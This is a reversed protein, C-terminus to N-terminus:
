PVVVFTQDNYNGARLRSKAEFVTDGNVNETSDLYENLQSCQTAAAVRTQAIGKSAFPATNIPRGVAVISAEATLNGVAISPSAPRTMQYYVFSGWQNQNFWAPLNATFSAENCNSFNGNVASCTIVANSNSCSNTKTPFTTQNCGASRFRFKGNSVRYSGLIGTSSCGSATCSVGIAATGCSGIGTCTCRTPSNLNCLGSFAGSFTGGSTRDFRVTEAATTTTDFLTNTCALLTSTAAATYTYACSQHNAPLFGSLLSQECAFNNTTGLQSAFPYYGNTDQYTKLSHRVEEGVRKELAAMLEDITIYVLKDNFNYPQVFTPDSASVNQSDEGMVFDEAVVSYSQNSYIAAGIRFGDLFQTADAAGARSQGNLPDGPAIIVAAVRDSVLSGNRDLVQLWPYSQTGGQRMYPTIANPPNIMGPNVIPNESNVHDRVLNRSVAYWLRNGQADRFGQGLGPYTSLGTYVNLGTNPDLCPSTDPQSPLQGLLFSNQFLTTVCDSSGDYIGVDLHRDPWPMQGPSFRHSVSWAILAQKAENLTQMTRKDQELRLRAPDFAYLLYALVGLGIIFAMLILVAGKQKAITQNLKQM